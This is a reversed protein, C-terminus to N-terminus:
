PLDIRYHFKDSRGVTRRWEVVGSQGGYATREMVMVPTNPAIRLLRAEEETPSGASLLEEARVVHSGYAQELTAYLRKDDLDIRDLGKFRAEELHSVYLCIPEDNALLIRRVRFIPARPAIRLREAIAPDGDPLLATDVHLARPIAKGRLDESFRFFRGFGRKTTDLRAVFTGSGPRRTLLGERVLALVAQRITGISVGFHAALEAETPLIGGPKWRGADLDAKLQHRVGLYLPLGLAKANALM